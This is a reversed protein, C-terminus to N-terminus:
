SLSYWAGRGKGHLKVLEREVLRKFHVKLTNRSAGTLTEAEKMTLRGHERLYDILQTSLEPLDTHLLREREVKVNLNHMQQRLASFFFLLWPQWNPADTRLTTQTNRLAM